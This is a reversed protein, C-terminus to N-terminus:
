AMVGGDVAGEEVHVAHKVTAEDLRPTETNTEKQWYQTFDHTLVNL